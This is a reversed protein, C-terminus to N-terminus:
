LVYWCKQNQNGDSCGSYIEPAKEPPPIYKFVQGDEPMPVTGYMLSLMFLADWITM